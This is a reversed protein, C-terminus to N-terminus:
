PSDARNAEGCVWSFGAQLFDNTASAALVASVTRGAPPNVLRLGIIGLAGPKNEVIVPQNLKARLGEAV